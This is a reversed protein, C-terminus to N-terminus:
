VKVLYNACVLDLLERDGGVSESARRLREIVAAVDEPSMGVRPALRRALRDDAADRPVGAVRCLRRRTDEYWWRAAVSAAGTRQHLRALAEVYEVAPRQPLRVPDPRAPGFRIMMRLLVVALAAALQLTVWRIPPRWLLAFLNGAGVQGLHYEDFAVAGSGRHALLLNVAFVANDARALQGNHFLAATPLVFIRGQGVATVTCLWSPADGAVPWERREDTLEAVARALREGSPVASAQSDLELRRVGALYRNPRRVQWLLGGGAGAPPIRRLRAAARAPDQVFLTRPLERAAPHEGELGACALVLTGGRDVWRRLELAETSTITVQPELIVVVSVNAPILTARTFLRVVPVGLRQLLTYLAKTGSMTTRLTSPVPVIETRAAVRAARDLLLGNLVLFTGLVAVLVVLDVSRKM